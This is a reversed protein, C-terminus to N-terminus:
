IQSLPKDEVNSSTEIRSGCLMPDQDVVPMMDVGGANNWAILYECGRVTMTKIGIYSPIEKAVTEKATQSSNAKNIAVVASFAAIILAALAAFTKQNM